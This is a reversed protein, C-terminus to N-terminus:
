CDDILYNLMMGIDHHKLIHCHFMIRNIKQDCQPLWHTVIIEKDEEYYKCHFIDKKIGNRNIGGLQHIHIPHYCIQKLNWKETSNNKVSFILVSESFKGGVINKNNTISIEYNGKKKNKSGFGFLAMTGPSGIIKTTNNLFTIQCLCASHIAKILDEFESYLNLNERNIRIYDIKIYKELKSNIHNVFDDLNYIEEENEINARIDVHTKKGDSDIITLLNSSMPKKLKGRKFKKLVLKIENDRLYTCFMRDDCGLNALYRINPYNYTDLAPNFIIKDQLLLNNNNNRIEPFNRTGKLVFITDNDAYFNVLEDHDDLSLVIDMRSGLILTKEQNKNILVPNVLLQGDIAVITFSKDASINFSRDYISGNLFRLRINNKIPVLQKRYEGGEKDNVMILSKDHKDKWNNCYDSSLEHHYYKEIVDSDKNCFVNSLKIVFDNLGFNESLFNDYKDEQNYVIVMGALGKLVDSQTIKHQHSHFWHTGCPLRLEEGLFSFNIKGNPANNNGFSYQYSSGDYRTNQIINKHLHLLFEGDINSKIIIEPPKIFNGKIKFNYNNTVGPFILTPLGFSTEGKKKLKGNKDKIIWKSAYYFNHLHTKISIKNPIFYHGSSHIITIECKDTNELYIFINNHLSNLTSEKSLSNNKLVNKKKNNAIRYFIFILVFFLMTLFSFLNILYKMLIFLLFILTSPNYM